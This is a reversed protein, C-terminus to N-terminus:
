PSTGNEEKEEVLLSFEWRARFEPVPGSQVPITEFHRTPTPQDTPWDSYVLKSLCAANNWQGGELAIRVVPRGAVTWRKNRESRVNSARVLLYCPPGPIHCFPCNPPHSTCLIEARCGPNPDTITLSSAVFCPLHFLNENREIKEQWGPCSCDSKKKKEQIRNKNKKRVKSKEIQTSSSKGPSNGIPIQLPSLAICYHHWEPSTNQSKFKSHPMIFIFENTLNKSHGEILSTLPFDM